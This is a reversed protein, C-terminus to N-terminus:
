EQGKKMDEDILRNIYASVSPKAYEKIQEAKEKTTVVRLVHKDEMYKDTARKQCKTYKSGLTMVEM